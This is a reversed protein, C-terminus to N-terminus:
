DRTASAFQAPRALAVQHQRRSGYKAARSLLTPNVGVQKTTQDEEDFVEIAESCAAKQRDNIEGLYLV